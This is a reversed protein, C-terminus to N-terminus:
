RCPHAPLPPRRSRTDSRHAHPYRASVVVLEHDHASAWQVFEAFGERMRVRGLVYEVVERETVRVQRFEEEMAQTLTLEGSLLGTEMAEWVGPAFRQVLLDLTDETTITGDFDCVIFYHLPAAM